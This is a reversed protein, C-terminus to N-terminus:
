GDFPDGAFLGGEDRWRGQGPDYYRTEGGETEVGERSHAIRRAVEDKLKDERDVANHPDYDRNKDLYDRIERQETLDDPVETKERDALDDYDGM